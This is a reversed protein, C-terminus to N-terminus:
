TTANVLLADEKTRVNNDLARRSEKQNEDTTIKLDKTQAENNTPSMGDIKTVPIIVLSKRSEETQDVL